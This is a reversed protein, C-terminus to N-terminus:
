PQNFPPREYHSPQIRRTPRWCGTDPQPGEPCPGIGSTYPHPTVDADYGVPVQYHHPNPNPVRQRQVTVPPLTVSSGPSSGLPPAIARCNARRILNGLIGYRYGAIKGVNEDTIGLLHHYIYLPISRLASGRRVFASQRTQDGINISIPLM